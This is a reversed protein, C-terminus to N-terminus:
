GFADRDGIDHNVYSILPHLGSFTSRDLSLTLAKIARQWSVTSIATGLLVVTEVDFNAWSFGDVVVGPSNSDKGVVSLRLGVDYGLFEDCCNSRWYLRKVLVGCLWLLAPPVSVVCIAVDIELPAEFICVLCV